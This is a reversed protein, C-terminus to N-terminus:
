KLTEAFEDLSTCTAALVVLSELAVADTRQRLSDAILQPVENFRARLFALIANVKGKLEGRLEGIEIGEQLIGKEITEAMQIGKQGKFVKTV